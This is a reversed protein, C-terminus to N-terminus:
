RTRGAAALHWSLPQGYSRVSGALAPRIFLLLKRRRFLDSAGINNFIIEITNGAIKLVVDFINQKAARKSRTRTVEVFDMIPRM